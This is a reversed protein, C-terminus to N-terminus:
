SLKLNNIDTSHLMVLCTRLRILNCIIDSEYAVEYNAKFVIEIEHFAKLEPFIPLQLM